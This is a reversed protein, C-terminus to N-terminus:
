SVKKLLRLWFRTEWTERSAIAMKAIFDRKSRAATAEEANAGIGTASTLLHKALVYEKKEHMRKYLAIIKLSFDFSMELIKNETKM